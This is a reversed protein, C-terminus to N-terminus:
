DIRNYTTTNEQAQVPVGAFVLTFALTAMMVITGMKALKM